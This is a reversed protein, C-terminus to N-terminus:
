AHPTAGDHLVFIRYSFYGDEKLTTHVTEHKFSLEAAARYTCTWSQMDLIRMWTSWCIPEITVRSLGRDELDRYVRLPLSLRSPELLDDHQTLTQFKFYKRQFWWKTRIWEFLYYEVKCSHEELTGHESHPDTM